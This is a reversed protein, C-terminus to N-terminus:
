FLICGGPLSNTPPTPNPEKAMGAKCNNQTDMSLDQQFTPHLEQAMGTKCHNQIDMSADRQFIAWGHTSSVVPIKSTEDIKIGAIGSVIAGDTEHGNNDFILPVSVLGSPISSFDEVECSINLLDRLFWGDYTTYSGSGFGHSEKSLIKSWWEKDGNDRYTEVLKDSIWEVKKWWAPTLGISEHIPQLMKKLALLKTKLKLWDEESGELEVFPIGCDSRCCYEFFEQMSSMVTIESVIRHTETSTSFDSRITDVYKDVKINSQILDTMERFFKEWDIGFTPDMDVTLRKKGDHNVFYERVANKKSNKDIAIAVTRIITYWWDDPVTRLGWHRNYCEYIATFFGYDGVGQRAVETTGEFPLMDKVHRRDEAMTGTGDEKQYDSVSESNSELRKIFKSLIFKVPEQKNWFHFVDNLKTANLGDRIYFTKPM